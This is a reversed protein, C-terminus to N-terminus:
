QSTGKETHKLRSRGLTALLWQPAVHSYIGVSVNGCHRVIMSPRCTRTSELRCRGVTALLWQPAVNSYIGVSVKGCHRVVMSPRCTHASELRSRGVIALLWQPAVHALLNWGLGEWLPSCDNLPSMHSYIGVSVKGCHRAVM